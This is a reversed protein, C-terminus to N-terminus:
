SPKKGENKNKNKTHDNKNKNKQQMKAKKTVFSAIANLKSSLSLSKLLLTWYVSM